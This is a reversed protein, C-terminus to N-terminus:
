PHPESVAAPQEITAPDDADSALLGTLMNRRGLPSSYESHAVVYNTLRAAAIPVVPVSSAAPVVYSSSENSRPAAAVMVPQPVDATPLGDSNELSGRYMMVTVTAVSAAVAIGAAPKLWRAPQLSSRSKLTAPRFETTEADQDIATAVKTAFGRSPGLSRPQRLAEGALLYRSMAQKLESDRALRRVLLETEEGPLEGDVFASLQQRLAENPLTPESM